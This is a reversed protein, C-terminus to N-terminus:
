QSLYANLWVGVAAHVAFVVLLLLMYKLSDLSSTKVDGIVEEVRRKYAVAQIEPNDIEEVGVPIFLEESTLSPHM